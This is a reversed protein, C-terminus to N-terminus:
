PKKRINATHKLKDLGLGRQNHRAVARAIEGAAQEMGLRAAALGSSDADRLLVSLFLPQYAEERLLQPLLLTFIVLLGLIGLIVIEVVSNKTRM